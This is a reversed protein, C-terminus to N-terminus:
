RIIEEDRLIREANRYLAKGCIGPQMKTEAMGRMGGNRIEPKRRRSPCRDGRFRGIGGPDTKKGDAKDPKWWIGDLSGGNIQILCGSERLQEVRDLDCAVNAYRETHAIM